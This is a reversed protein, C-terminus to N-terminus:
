RVMAAKIAEVWADLDLLSSARFYRRKIKGEDSTVALEFAFDEKSGRKRRAKCTCQDICICICFLCFYLPQCCNCYYYCYSYYNIACNCTLFLSLKGARLEITKKSSHYSSSSTASTTLLGYGSTVSLQNIDPDDEYIFM